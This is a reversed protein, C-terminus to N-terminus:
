VKIAEEKTECLIFSHLNERPYNIIEKRKFNIQDEPIMAIASSEFDHENCARLVLYVHTKAM